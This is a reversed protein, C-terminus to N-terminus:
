SYFIQLKKKQPRIRGSKMKIFISLSKQTSQFQKQKSTKPDSMTEYPQQAGATNQGQQESAGAQYQSSEPNPIQNQQPQNM